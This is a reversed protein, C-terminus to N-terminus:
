ASPQLSYLPDSVLFSSFVSMFIIILIPMLQIFAAYSSAQLSFFLIKSLTRTTGGVTLKNNSMALIAAIFFTKDGIESVLIVSLSEVFGHLFGELCFTKLDVFMHSPAIVEISLSM